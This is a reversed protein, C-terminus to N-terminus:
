LQNPMHDTLIHVIVCSYLRMISVFEDLLQSVLCLAFPINDNSCLLCMM